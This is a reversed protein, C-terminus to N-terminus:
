RTVLVPCHAHKVVNEVTGGLLVEPLGRRGRYGL